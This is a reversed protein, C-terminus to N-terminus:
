LKINKAYVGVVPLEWMEGQYAKLAGVIILLALVTDLCTAIVLGILPIFITLVPGLVAMVVAVLTTALGQRAHFALFDGKDKMIMPLFCLFPIYGLAAIVRKKEFDDPTPQEIKPQEVTEEASKEIDAM